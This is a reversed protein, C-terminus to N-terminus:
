GASTGQGSEPPEEPPEEPPAESLDTLGAALDDLTIQSPDSFLPREEYVLPECDNENPRHKSYDSIIRVM